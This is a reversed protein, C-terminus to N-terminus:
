FIVQGNQVRYATGYWNVYGTYTFDLMGSKIYWWGYENQALGTFGFNLAGNEIRWWGYENQAVGTYGFDIQGNRIYWWGYESNVVSNCNFDVAGNVIRWWGNENQAVGTYAFDIQGNRIYWWGYESNVVSTCNFDVAGNVIRWWGGENQALGTYNFDVEGNRVFWWGYGNTTVSTYSTDVQGKENAYYWATRGNVTIYRLTYSDDTWDPDNQGCKTCTGDVYDHGTAEIEKSEMYNCRSCLRVKQGAETCTAEKSITWGDLAHGLTEVEDAVYSDGCNKCTYTTYGKETCMPATVVAEYAHGTAEIEETESYDCRSCKRVKEGAETCSAEKSITWEGLNHGLCEGEEVTYKDGCKKCTYITYGKQTCTPNIFVITEYDHGTIGIEEMESYDCRSCKRGKEGAETCSAERSVEWEGLDHGLDEVEDAVYTDGCKKCTYTTYGAETCTPPTVVAEYIHGTAEIEETESYDCRSCKRVKEGSETCSAEKSATWEGLDHGPAEVEDAVYTDGCNKCTYTTYGKETCTPDTAVAEYAHGTAETKETESYDCSSCKRIKEGSETCSAEKSVTWEGLDHGFSEVEDTVYSDGCNKCTYTTYGAETCTPDTVAAEYDHGTPSVRNKIYSYGCMKCTYTDYGEETCTPVKEVIDYIHDIVDIVERENYDCRSCKRVKEGAEMCSAEKNVTWEGLDHGLAELEVTKTQSEFLINKFVAQYVVSGMEICTPEKTSVKTTNVTEMEVHNLDHRCVRKATVTNYDDSWEYVIDEYDHGHEECYAYEYHYTPSIDNLSDGKPIANWEEESGAYYIDTITRVNAFVSNEITTLSKSLYVKQLNTCNFFASDDIEQIGEPLVIEKLKSCGYFAAYPIYTLKNSFTVAELNEADMFARWAIGTIYDPFCYTTRKSGGAYLLVRNDGILAGDIVQYYPNGEEVTIEQISGSTFRDGVIGAGVVEKPIWLSKIDTGQFAYQGMVTLSRPINIKKLNTCNNFAWYGIYTVGDPIQVSTISDNYEFAGDNIYTVTDPFVIDGLNAKPPGYIVATKDKTYIIENEQCIYPNDKAVVIKEVMPSADIMSNCGSFVNGTVTGLRLTSPLNVQKLNYESTIPTGSFFQIGESFTLTTLHQNEEFAYHGIGVVPKGDIETPTVVNEENGSYKTIIVQNKENLRYTYDGCKMESETDVYSYESMPYSENFGEESYEASRVHDSFDNMNKLFYSYEARGADWTSDLNYYKGDIKVINWAHPGGATGSIVRADVGAELAMRYFLSAYGQCVSTKNILAAYATYKLIYAEDDLNEYDYTVNSCIYDYIAKVKQYDTKDALDLTSLVEDVKETVQEEQEANSLYTVNYVLQMDYGNKQSGSYSASVTWGGYHRKIYDGENGKGTHQVAQEFLSKSLKNFLEQTITEDCHYYLTITSERAVLKERFREALQQQDSTYEANRASRRLAYFRVSKSETDRDSVVDQYYPNTYHYSKLTTAANADVKGLMLFMLVFVFSLFIHKKKM